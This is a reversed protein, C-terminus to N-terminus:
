LAKGIKETLEVVRQSYGWENDYWSIVKVMNGDVVMTSMSDVISSNPNGKFDVSVLPEDCVSLINKLSGESAKKLVANVEEVTTPRKVTCVFDVLSVTPTPVRVSFGNLKGKLEPLVEAVAKAAGTTTPIMSLGAARARRLDKHAVDLVVQDNTYSHITTMLGKEIGFAENLVKVIPAICNTTCSANSIILDKEAHLDKDNVGLVITRDVDKGPATILVRKAGAQLHKSAGERDTFAGTSEIVIDIKNDRHPLELPDRTHYVKVLKGNVLIEDDNKVEVDADLIGYTSDYKLLHASTAAPNPDNIAVIDFLDRQLNIRFVMRGIRGFGNIAVRPKM